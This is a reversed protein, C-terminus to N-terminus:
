HRSARLVLTQVTIVVGVIALIGALLFNVKAPSLRAALRHVIWAGVLTGVASGAVPIAVVPFLESVSGLQSSLPTLSSFMVVLFAMLIAMVGCGTGVATSIERSFLLTFLVVFNTGNGFGFLGAIFGFLLAFLAGAAYRLVEQLPFLPSDNSSASTFVLPLKETQQISGSPQAIGDDTFSVKAQREKCYTLVGRIAFFMALAFVFYAVGGRLFSSHKELFTQMILLGPIAGLIAVGGYLFLLRYDLQKRRASIAAVIAGDM